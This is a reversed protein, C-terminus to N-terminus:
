AVAICRWKSTAENWVFGIDLRTSIVTTSPLTVTGSSEFSTGWTIARATGDDTIDIWLTDGAVPTGSLNTTMSTVAQALGTIHVHDTTDSNITPTASQAVVNDRRTIRKNTFTGTSIFTTIDTSGTGPSSLTGSSASIAGVTSITGNTSINVKSTGGVQMDMLFQNGSGTATQARNILLDTNGGSGSSNITPTIATFISQGAANTSFTSINKFQILGTSVASANAPSNFLLNNGAGAQYTTNTGDASLALRTIGGFKLSVPTDISTPGLFAASTSTITGQFSGSSVNLVAQQVSSGNQIYNTNGGILIVTSTSTGGTSSVGWYNGSFNIQATPSSISVADKFVGLSSAGGGGCSAISLNGSGNSQWCGTADGPPLNWTVSTYTTDSSKFGAFRTGATNYFKLAKDALIQEEGNFQVVGDNINLESQGGGVAFQINTSDLNMYSQNPGYNHMRIHPDRGLGGAPYAGPYLEISALPITPNDTIASPASSTAALIWYTGDVSDVDGTDFNESHFFSAIDQTLNLLSRNVPTLELYSPVYLNNEIYQFYDAAALGTSRILQKGSQFTSKLTASGITADFLFKSSGGFAGGNEFQVAGTPLAPVTTGGGGSVTATGSPQLIRAAFVSGPFFILTLLVLKKM